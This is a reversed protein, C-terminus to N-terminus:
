PTLEYMNFVLRAGRLRPVLGSFVLSNPLNDVQVAAYRRRLGLLGALAAAALFFGAYELPYRILPRRRHRIPVRFVRLGPQRRSLRDGATWGTSCIM